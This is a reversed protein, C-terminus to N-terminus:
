TELIEEGVKRYSPRSLILFASSLDHIILPFIPSTKNKSSPHLKVHVTTITRYTDIKMSRGILDAM